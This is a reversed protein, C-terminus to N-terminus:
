LSFRQMGTCEERQFEYYGVGLNFRGKLICDCIWIVCVVLWHGRSGGLAAYALEIKFRRFESAAARLPLTNAAAARELNLSRFHDLSSEVRVSRTYRVYM